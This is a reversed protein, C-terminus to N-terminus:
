DGFSCSGQVCVGADGGFDPEAEGGAGRARGSAGPAPSGCGARQLLPQPQAQAGPLRPLLSRPLSRPLSPLRACGPPLLSSPPAHPSPQTDIEPQSPTPHASLSAPPATLLPGLSQSPHPSSPLLPLSLYRHWWRRWGLAPPPPVPDTGQRHPPAPGPSPSGAARLLLRLEGPLRHPLCLWTAPERVGREGGWGEPAM